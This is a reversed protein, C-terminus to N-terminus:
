SLALAKVTRGPVVNGEEPFVASGTVRHSLGTTAALWLSALMVIRSPVASQDVWQLRKFVIL